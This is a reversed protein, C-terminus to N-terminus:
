QFLDKLIKDATMDRYGDPDSMVTGNIKWRFRNYLQLYTVNRSCGGYRKYYEPYYKKMYKKALKVAQSNAKGEPTYTGCLQVGPPSSHLLVVSGDECEGVVIYVHGSSSMIDGAKHNKIKGKETYTGWGRNAFNKAMRRASMVYGKKGDETEMLNYIAWGVYGSCDLGNHIQYRTKTYDYYKTQRDFFKEWQPSVGITRAEIGAGTDERNWGGGWVYLTSGVPQLAVTLFQKITRQTNEKNEQASAASSTINATICLCIILIFCLIRKRIIKKM